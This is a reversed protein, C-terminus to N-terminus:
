IDEGTVAEKLIERDFGLMEYGMMCDRIYKKSPKAPKMDENMIYVLCEVSEYQDRKKELAMCCCGSSPKQLKKMNVTIMEKRYLEPWEEYSDLGKEDMETITWIAAPVRHNQSREITFWAEEDKGATKLAWDKLQATGVLKAQPCHNKMIGMNINSGYALYYKSNM